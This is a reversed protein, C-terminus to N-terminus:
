VHEGSVTRLSSTLLKLRSYASLRNFLVHVPIASDILARLIRVGSVDRVYCRAQPWDGWGKDHVCITDSRSEQGHIGDIRNTIELDANGLKPLRLTTM